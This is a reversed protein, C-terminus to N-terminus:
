KSKSINQENIRREEEKVLKVLKVLLKGLGEGYAKKAKMVEKYDEEPIWINVRPM